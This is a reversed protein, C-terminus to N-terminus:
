LEIWPNPESKRKMSQNRWSDSKNKTFTLWITRPWKLNMAINTKSNRCNVLSKKNIGQFPTQKLTWFNTCTNKHVTRKMWFNDKWVTWVTRCDVTRKSSPSTKNLWTNKIKPSCTLREEKPRSKVSDQTAPLMLVLFRNITFALNKSWWNRRKNPSNTIGWSNMTDPAKKEWWNSNKGLNKSKLNWPNGAIKMISPMGKATMTRQAWCDPTTNSKMWCHINSIM